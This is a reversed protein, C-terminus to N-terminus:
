CHMWNGRIPHIKRICYCAIQKMTFFRLVFIM